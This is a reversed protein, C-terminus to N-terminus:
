YCQMIHNQKVSVTKSQEGIPAHNSSYDSLVGPKKTERGSALITNTLIHVLTLISIHSGLQM